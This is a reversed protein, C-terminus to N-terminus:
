EHHWRIHCLGTLYYIMELIVDANVGDEHGYDRIIPDVVQNQILTNVSSLEAGKVIEPFVHLHFRSHVQGLLKTFFDQSSKQAAHKKLKKGFAERKRRADPIEFDRGGRSLKEELDMRDLQTRYKEIEDELLNVEPNNTVPEIAEKQCDAIFQVVGKYVGANKNVPKAITTHDADAAVPTCGHVDPNASNQGVLLTSGIMPKTEFYAKVLVSRDYAAKSFWQKLDRLGADDSQMAQVIQSNNLIPFHKVLDSGVSGDHPTALFVVGRVNEILAQHHKDLSGDCNRMIQKVLLGGLSHCIIVLPKKGLGSKTVYDCLESAKDYMPMNADKGTTHFKPAIYGLSYIAVGKLDDLLWAPWFGPQGPGGWSKEADGGLGHFFLIELEVPQETCEGVKTLGLESM